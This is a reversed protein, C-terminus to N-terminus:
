RKGDRRKEKRDSLQFWLLSYFGRGAKRGMKRKPISSNAV